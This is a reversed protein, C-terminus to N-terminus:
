DPTIEITFSDDGAPTAVEILWDGAVDRYHASVCSGSDPRKEPEVADGSEPRADSRLVGDGCVRTTVGDPFALRFPMYHITSGADGPRTQMNWQLFKVLPPQQAEFACGDTISIRREGNIVCPRANPNAAHPSTPLVVGISAAAALELLGLATRRRAV